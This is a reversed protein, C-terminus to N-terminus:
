EQQQPNEMRAEILVWDNPAATLFTGCATSPVCFLSKIKMTGSALLDLHAAGPLRIMMSEETSYYNGLDIIIESNFNQWRGEYM